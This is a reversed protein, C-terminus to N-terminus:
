KVEQGTVTYTKGDRLIYLQGNRLLKTGKVNVSTEVQELATNYGHYYYSKKDFQLWSNYAEAITTSDTYAQGEARLSDATMVTEQAEHLVRPSCAAFALPLLLIYAFIRKVSCLYM